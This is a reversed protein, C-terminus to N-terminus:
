VPLRNLMASVDVALKQGLQLLLRIVTRGLQLYQPVIESHLQQCYLEQARELKLQEKLQRGVEIMREIRDLLAEFTAASKSRLLHWLERM